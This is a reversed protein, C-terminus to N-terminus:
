GALPPIGLRERTEEVPLDVWAWHDWRASLKTGKRGLRGVTGTAACAGEISVAGGQLLLVSGAGLLEAGQTVVFRGEACGPAKRAADAPGGVALAAAVCLAPIMRFGRPVCM